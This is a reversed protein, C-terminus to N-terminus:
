SLRLAPGGLGPSSSAGAAGSVPMRRLGHSDQHHVVVRRHGLHDRFGNAADAVLRQNREVAHLPQAKQFGRGNLADEEVEDHRPLTPQRNQRLDPTAIRVNGDDDKRSMSTVFFGALSHGESRRFDEQLRSTESLEGVHQRPQCASVSHSIQGAWFRTKGYKGSNGLEMHFAISLYPLATSFTRGEDIRM